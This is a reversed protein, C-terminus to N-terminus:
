QTEEVGDKGGAKELEERYEVKDPDLKVAMEFDAKAWTKDGLGKCVLGRHYHVQALWNNNIKTSKNHWDIASSFDEVANAYKGTDNYLSGRLFYPSDVGSDEKETLIQIAKTCDTIAAENNGLKGYLEARKYYPFYSDKGYFDDDGKICESLVDIALQYEGAEACNHAIMGLAYDGLDPDSKFIKIAERIGAIANNRDGKKAYAISRAAYFDWDDKNLSIAKEFDDIAAEAQNLKFYIEGRNYYTRGDPDIAIVQNFDALAKQYDKLYGEYIWGRAGYAQVDNPNLKIAASYHEIALTYEAKKIEDAGESESDISRAKDKHVDGRRKYLDADDPAIQIAKTLEAIAKNYEKEESYNEASKKLAEVESKPDPVFPDPVCSNGNEDKYAFNRAIDRSALFKVADM